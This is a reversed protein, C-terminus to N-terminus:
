LLVVFLSFRLNLLVPQSLHFSGSSLLQPNLPVVGTVQFLPCLSSSVSGSHSALLSILLRKWQLRAGLVWLEEWDWEAVSLDSKDSSLPNETFVLLIFKM